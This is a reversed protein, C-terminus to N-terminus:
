KQRKATRLAKAFRDTCAQTARDVGVAELAFPIRRTKAVKTVHLRVATSLDLGMKKCM